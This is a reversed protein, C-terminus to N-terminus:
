SWRRARRSARSPSSPPSPRAWRCSSASRCTPYHVVLLEYLLAAGLARAADAVHRRGADRHAGPPVSLRRAPLRHRRGALLAPLVKQHREALSSVAAARRPTRPAARPGRVIHRLEVDQLKTVEFRKAHHDLHEHIKSEDVLDPFFEQLNRQRRRVRLDARASAPTTTSSSTSTTSRRRRVGPGVERRAVAPVRRDDARHRRLGPGQRARGHAQARAGARTSARTPPTAARTSSGRARSASAPRRDLRPSPRSTRAVASSARPRSGSGSSTATSRPRAASRTSSPTSTSSSSPSGQRAAQAGRQLGRLRRPRLGTSKGRVSLMHIRVVLLGAKRSGRRTTRRRAGKSAKADRHANLLPRFKKWAPAAGEVLLSLMTMFHSKGSGFSGHIFRGYEEGRDFVQKM